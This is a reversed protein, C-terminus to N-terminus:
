VIITIKTFSIYTFNYLPFWKTLPYIIKYLFTVFSSDSSDSKSLFMYWFPLDQEVADSATPDPAQENNLLELQAQDPTLDIVRYANGSNTHCWEFGLKRLVIGLKRSNVAQSNQFLSLRLNEFIMIQVNKVDLM